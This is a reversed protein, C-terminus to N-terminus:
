RLWGLKGLQEGGAKTWLKGKKQVGQHLGVAQLQNKVQTRLRMQQHRHGLLPRVDREEASAVWLRACGEPSLLLERIHEADRGETQQQGVM